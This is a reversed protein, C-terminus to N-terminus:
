YGQSKLLLIQSTEYPKGSTNIYVKQSSPDRNIDPLNKYSGDKYTTTYGNISNLDFYFVTEKGSKVTLSIDVPANDL